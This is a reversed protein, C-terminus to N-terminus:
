AQERPAALHQVEGLAAVVAGPRRLTDVGHLVDRADKRLDRRGALVEHAVTAAERIRGSSFTPAVLRSPDLVIRRLCMSVTSATQYSRTKAFGRAIAERIRITNASLRGTLREHAARMTAVGGTLVEGSEESLLRVAAERATVYYETFEAELQGATRSELVGSEAGASLRGLFVDRLLDAEDLADPDFAVVASELRGHIAPPDGGNGWSM